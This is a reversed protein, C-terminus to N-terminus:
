TPSRPSTTCLRVASTDFKRWINLLEKPFLLSAVIVWPIDCLLQFTHERRRQTDIYIYLIHSAKGHIAMGNKLTSRSTMSPVKHKLTTWIRVTLQTNFKGSWDLYRCFESQHVRSIRRKYIYNQECLLPEWIKTDTRVLSVKNAHIISAEVILTIM